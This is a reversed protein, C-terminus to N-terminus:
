EEEKLDRFYLERVSGPVHRIALKDLNLLWHSPSECHTMWMYYRVLEYSGFDYWATVTCEDVSAVVSYDTPCYNCHGSVERGLNRLAREFEDRVYEPNCFRDALFPIMGHGGASVLIAHPCVNVAAVSTWIPVYTKKRLLFRDGVIRPSAEHWLDTPDEPWTWDTRIECTQSQGFRPALSINPIRHLRCCRECAWHDPRTYALGIYFPLQERYPLCPIITKWDRHTLQRLARCTQSLHFEAALDLHDIIVHLLDAPLELLKPSASSLPIAKVNRSRHLGSRPKRFSVLYISLITLPHLLAALFFIWVMKQDRISASEM